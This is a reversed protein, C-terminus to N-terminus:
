RMVRRSAEGAEHDRDFGNSGGTMLLSGGFTPPNRTVRGTMLLSGGFTNHEAYCTADARERLSIQMLQRERLHSSEKHGSRDYPPVWGM